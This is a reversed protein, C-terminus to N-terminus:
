PHMIFISAYYLRTNIFIIMLNSYSVLILYMRRIDDLNINLKSSITIVDYSDGSYSKSMELSNVFMYMSDEGNAEVEIRCLQGASCVPCSM